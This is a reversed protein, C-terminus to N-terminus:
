GDVVAATSWQIRSASQGELQILPVVSRGDDFGYYIVQGDDFALFGDGPGTIPNDVETLGVNVQNIGNLDYKYLGKTGAADRCVFYLSLSDAGFVPNYCSSGAPQQAVPRTNAINGVSAVHIRTTGDAEITEFALYRGDPSFTAARGNSLLLNPAPLNAPTTVDLSYIASSGDSGRGVFLLTTGDPSWTPPSLELSLETTSQLLTLSLGSELRLVRLALGGAESETMFAVLKGDPSISPFYQSDAQPTDFLAAIAEGEVLYINVLEADGEGSTAQFVAVFSDSVSPLSILPSDALTPIRTAAEQLRQGIEPSILSRRPRPQANGPAPPTTNTPAPAPAIVNLNFVTSATTSGDGVIVTVPTTGVSLGNLTLTNGAIVATGVSANTPTASIALPNGDPDAVVLNVSVSTGRTVNQDGIPAITPPNNPAPANVTVNFVANVADTGDTVTVTITTTGAAIGNITLINAANTVTAVAANGSAASLTLPDGDADSATVAVNIFTGQLLSQDAIPTIVPPTNVVVPIVCGDPNLSFEFPCLDVDDTLGDGDSDAPTLVIPACIDPRSLIAIKHAWPYTSDVITGDTLTLTDAIPDLCPPLLQEQDGLDFWGQNYFKTAKTCPSASSFIVWLEYLNLEAEMSQLAYAYGSCTQLSPAVNPDTLPDKLYTFMATFPDTCFTPIDVAAFMAAVDVGFVQAYQAYVFSDYITFPPACENHLIGFITQSSPTLDGFQSFVAVVGCPDGFIDTDEVGVTLMRERIAVAREISIPTAICIAIALDILGASAPAYMMSPNNGIFQGARLPVPTSATGALAAGFETPVQGDAIAQALACANDPTMVGDLIQWANTNLAQLRDMAGLLAPLVEPCNELIAQANEDSLPPAEEGGFVLGAIFDQVYTCPDFLKGSAIELQVFIPLNIADTALEPCGALPTTLDVDSPFVSLTTDEVVPCGGNEIPGPEVPCQDQSDLLGDFDTDPDTPQTTTNPTTDSVQSCNGGTRVVAGSVWGGNIQYWIGDSQQSLGLVNYLTNAVIQTLPENNTNPAPRVNVSGELTALVCPGSTPMTISPVTTAVPCGNNERPGFVTPCYDYQTTLGDNDVDACGGWEVLGKEQPCVDTNDPVTDGDSDVAPPCGDQTNPAAQQPCKDANDTIGDGDTDPCGNRSPSPVQPCADVSDPVGDKDSDTSAEVSFFVTNSFYENFWTCDFGIRSPAPTNAPIVYTVSSAGSGVLVQSDTYCDANATIGSPPTIFLTITTGPPGSQPSISIVGENTQAQSSATVGILLMTLALLGVKLVRVM